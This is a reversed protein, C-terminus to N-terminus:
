LMSHSNILVTIPLHRASIKALKAADTIVDGMLVSSISDVLNGKHTHM